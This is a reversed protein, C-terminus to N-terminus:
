DKGAEFLFKKEEETLSDYGSKSIKDLILDIQKQKNFQDFEKRPTGAYGKKSSAKRRHVTKLKAKKSFLSAFWDMFREFGEGIDQGKKYQNAYLFGL